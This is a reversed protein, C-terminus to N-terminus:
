AKKATSKTPIREVFACHGAHTGSGVQVFVVPVGMIHGAIGGFAVM